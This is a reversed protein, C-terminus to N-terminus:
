AALYPSTVNGSLRISHLICAMSSTSVFLAFRWNWGFELCETVGDMRRTQMLEGLAM